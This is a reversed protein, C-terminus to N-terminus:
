WNGQLLDLSVRTTRGEPALVPEIRMSPLGLSAKGPPRASPRVRKGWSRAVFGGSVLGLAMGGLGFRAGQAIADSGQANSGVAYGLAFGLATGVLGSLDVIAVETRTRELFRASLAGAAIGIATGGLVFWGVKGADPRNGNWSFSEALLAAGATGWLGGSNVMAADGASIKGFHAVLAATTVGVAGGLLTIGYISRESANLGLALAAGMGSGFAGGGILISSTGVSIGNRTTLFSGAFGAGIGAVSSLILTLVGTGSQTFQTSGSLAGVLLPGVVGGFTMAGLVLETRGSRPPRELRVSRVFPAGSTVDLYERHWPYGPYELLLSHRGLELQGRWPTEGVLREDVFVRAGSPDTVVRADATTHELRYQYFYPQGIDCHIAHREANWGPRELVLEYDGAPLAFLHPTLAEEVVSGDKRRVEAHIQEPLTTVSVRAPLHRLVRLRNEVIKRRPDDASAEALYHEFARVSADYDLLREQAQGINYLVNPHPKKQYAIEFEAIAEEYKGEDYLKQAAEYRARADAADDARAVGAHALACCLAVVFLRV